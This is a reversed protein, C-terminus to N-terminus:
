CFEEAEPGRGKVRDELPLPCTREKITGKRTKAFCVSGRLDTKEKQARTNLDTKLLFKFFGALTILKREVTRCDGSFVASDGIRGLLAALV